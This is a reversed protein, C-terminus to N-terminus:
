ETARRDAAGQQRDKVERRQQRARRLNNKGRSGAGEEPSPGPLLLDREALLFLHPNADVERQRAKAERRRQKARRQHALHALDRSEAALLPHDLWHCEQLYIAASPYSLVQSAKTLECDADPQSVADSQAILYLEQAVCNKCKRQTAKHSRQTKSYEGFAKEVGCIFCTCGDAWVDSKLPANPRDASSQTAADPQPAGVRQPVENTLGSSFGCSMTVCNKCKRQTPHHSWQTRSYEGFVKEVGCGACACMPVVGGGAAAEAMSWAADRAAAAAAAAQVAATGVDLEVDIGAVDTCLMVPLMPRGLQPTELLMRSYIQCAVWADCAAYKIQKKSLPAQEWNSMTIKKTKSLEYDDLTEKALTGLGKGLYGGREALAALEIRGQVVLNTDRFLKLADDLVAVGVKSWLNGDSLVQQLLRCSQLSDIEMHALHLLLATCRQKGAVEECVALQLLATPHNKWDPFTAPKWEIDFGVVLPNEKTQGRFLHKQIWAECTAALHTRTVRIHPARHWGTAVLVDISQKDHQPLVRQQQVQPPIELECKKVASQSGNQPQNLGNARRIAKKANAKLRRSAQINRFPGL